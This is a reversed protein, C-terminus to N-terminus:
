SAREPPNIRTWVPVGDKFNVSARSCQALRALVSRTFCMPDDIHRLERSVREILDNLAIPEAIMTEVQAIDHDALVPQV